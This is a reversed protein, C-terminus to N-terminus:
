NNEYSLINNKIMLTQQFSSDKIGSIVDNSVLKVFHTKKDLLMDYLTLEPHFGWVPTDFRLKLESYLNM